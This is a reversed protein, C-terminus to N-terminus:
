EVNSYRYRGTCPKKPHYVFLGCNSQALSSTSHTAQQCCSSFLLRLTRELLVSLPANGSYQHSPWLRDTLLVRQSSLIAPAAPLPLSPLVLTPLLLIAAPLSPWFTPSDVPLLTHQIMHRKGAAKGGRTKEESKCFQYPQCLNSSVWQM